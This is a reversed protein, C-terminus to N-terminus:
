PLGKAAEDVIQQFEVAALRVIGLPSQTSHGYEIEIAYPLNSVIYIPPGVHAESLVTQARLVSAGGTPDIVGPSEASPEGVTTMWSGRLRGGVYGPPPPHKWLDPNGVPTRSVINALLGQCSARLVQDANAKAKETWKAVSVAFQGQRAEPM